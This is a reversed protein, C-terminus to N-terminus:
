VPWRSNNDSITFSHNAGETTFLLDLLRQAIEPVANEDNSGLLPGFEPDGILPLYFAPM